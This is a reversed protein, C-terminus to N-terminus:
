QQCILMAILKYGITRYHITEDGKWTCFHSAVGKLLLLLPALSWSWTRDVYGVKVCRVFFIYLCQLGKPLASAHWAECIRLELSDDEGQPSSIHLPQLSVTQSRCYITKFSKNVNERHNLSWDGFRISWGDEKSMTKGLCRTGIRAHMALDFSPSSRGLVHV